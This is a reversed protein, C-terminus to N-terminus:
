TRRWPKVHRVEWRGQRGRCAEGQMWSESGNRVYSALFDRCTSGNQDYAASLPTITGRAGTSPNEWPVSVDQGNRTLAEDIAARTAALDGENATSEAKPAVARVSATHEVEPKRASLSDLQYSLSCGGTALALAATLGAAPVNRWLRV